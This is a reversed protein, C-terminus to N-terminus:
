FDLVNRTSLRSQHTMTLHRLRHLHRVQMKGLSDEMTGTLVTPRETEHNGAMVALLLQLSLGVLHSNRVIRGIGIPKALRTGQLRNRPVGTPQHSTARDNLAHRKRPEITEAIGVM